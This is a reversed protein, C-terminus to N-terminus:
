KVDWFIKTSLNDAAQVAQYNAANYTQENTPYLWRTPPLKQVGADPLFTLAPLKLRRQEAWCEMPQLVSYNIWKQIAILNLKQSKNTANTWSVGNSALYNSIENAGLATLPGATNDSSLTRLWYYYNISQTIGAQYATQASADNGANLYYEALMFNIEAATILTGPLYVNQTLTSRNYRAITGRNLITSQSTSTLTPDLGIYAGAASDGPEFMARLRPDANNNMSDIMGKNARDSQQGGGGILGQYFDSNAGTNTGNNISTATNTVKIMINDNYATVLPYNTANGVIAAMESSVRSQLSSVGSVRMLLRVRLSNCYQKWKKLDGHNLFDQTKMTTSVAPSVSITNLEDAFGKLDDLMKTYITLAPDYKAASAQYDGGNTGLLGAGSWPIDGWLDVAKQTYDYYYITAAIIYLRNAQQDAASLTSNVRLIEKYQALFGYYTSWFDGIAAAGPIYRGNSNLTVATQSWPILTNQYVVFYDWYHYMVYNLNSSMFGAFQRDVTTTAVSSPNTYADTFQKKTCGSIVLMLVLGSLLIKKM